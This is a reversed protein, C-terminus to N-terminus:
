VQEPQDGHGTLASVVCCFEGDATKGLRQALLHQDGLMRDFHRTHMGATDLSGDAPIGGDDVALVLLGERLEEVFPQGDMGRFHRRLGYNLPTALPWGRTTTPQSALAM